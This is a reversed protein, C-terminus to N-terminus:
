LRLVINPNEAFGKPLEMYIEEDLKGYLYINQVDLGIVHWKELTALELMLRVTEFHVIPSYIDTYDTSAHQSFGKAVLCAKKHRDLKISFVWHYKIPQKM